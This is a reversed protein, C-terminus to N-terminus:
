WDKTGSSREMRNEISATTMVHESTTHLVGKGVDERTNRTVHQKVARKIQTEMNIFKKVYKSAM